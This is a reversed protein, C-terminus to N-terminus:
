GSRAQPRRARHQAASEFPVHFASSKPLTLASVPSPLSPVRRPSPSAFKFSRRSLLLPIANSFRELLRAEQFVGWCVSHSKCDTPFQDTPRANETREPPQRAPLVCRTQNEDVGRRHRPPKLLFNLDIGPPFRM